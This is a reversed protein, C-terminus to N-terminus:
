LCLEACASNSLNVILVPHIVRKVAYNTTTHKNNLRKLKRTEPNFYQTHRLETTSNLHIFEPDDLVANITSNQRM